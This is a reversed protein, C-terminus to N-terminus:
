RMPPKLCRNSRTWQTQLHRTKLQGLIRSIYGAQGPPASGASKARLGEWRKGAGFLLDKMDSRLKESELAQKNM